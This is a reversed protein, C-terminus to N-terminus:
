TSPLACVCMSMYCSLHFSRWLQLILTYLAPGLFFRLVPHYLYVLDEYVTSSFWHIVDLTSLSTFLSM